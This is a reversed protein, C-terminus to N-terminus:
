SVYLYRFNSSPIVEIASLVLLHLLSFYYEDKSFLMNGYYLYRNGLFNQLSHSVVLQIHLRFYFLVFHSLEMHFLWSSPSDSIFYFLM